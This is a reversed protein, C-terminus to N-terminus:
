VYYPNPKTLLTILDVLWGIGFLGFTFLYLIGMGTKGEYFKHAGLGGLFFCLLLAVTKDKPTGASVTKVAPQPAINNTIVIQPQPNVRTAVQPGGCKPCVACSSHIRSGCHRCFILENMRPAFQPASRTTAENVYKTGCSQCVWIGDQCILDPSNCMQCILAKVPVVVEETEHTQCSSISPNKKNYCSLCLNAVKKGRNQLTMCQQALLIIERSM